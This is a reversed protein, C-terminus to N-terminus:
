DASITIDKIWVNRDRKRRPQLDDNVFTIKIRGIAQKGVKFSLAYDRFNKALQYFKSEMTVLYLDKVLKQYEVLIISYEDLARSGRARFTVKFNNVPFRRLPTKIFGDNFLVITNDRIRTTNQKYGRNLPDITFDQPKYSMDQHNMISSKQINKFTSVLLRNTPMGLFSTLIGLVVLGIGLALIRRVFGKKLNIQSDSVKKNRIFEIICFLSLILALGTIWLLGSVIAWWNIEIIERM